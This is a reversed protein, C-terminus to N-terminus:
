DPFYPLLTIPLLAYALALFVVLRASSAPNTMANQGKADRKMQGSGEGTM